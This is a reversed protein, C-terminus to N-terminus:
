FCSHNWLRIKEVTAPPEKPGKTFEQMFYLQFTNLAGNGGNKANWSRCLHKGLLRLNNEDRSGQLNDLFKRWDESSFTDYIDAPRDFTVEKNNLVDWKTGDKLTGDMVWWGDSRQPHPAFMAWGQQLHFTFMIEDFPSGIYWKRDEVYGEINWAVMLALIFAGFFKEVKNLKIKIKDFGITKFSTDMVSAFKSRGAIKKPTQVATDSFLSVEGVEKVESLFTGVKSLFIRGLFRVFFMRSSLLMHPVIASGSYLNNHKDELVLHQNENMLDAARSHMSAPLIRVVDLFLLERVILAIKRSYESQADYYLNLASVSTERVKEGLYDWWSTPILGIWIILCIPVFNGLHLTLGIGTHFALFSIVALGRFFDRRVPIFLMLPGIIELAYSAFSLVRTATYQQGLWKGLSTTFIDLQLMFWVADFTTHYVPAWKYLFTLIYLLMIQVIWISTFISFYEIDKIETENVARDVSYRASMPLFISWFLFIRLLMDGGSTAAEPFRAQFSIITIWVIINSIRTRWGLAFTLSALMGILALMLAFSYSGNLSLLSMRWSTEFQEILTWRPLIGADTFFVDIDSIRRGIDFFVLIGLLVRALALSRLDLKFLNKIM